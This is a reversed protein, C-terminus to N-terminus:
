SELRSFRGQLSVNLMQIIENETGVFAIGEIKSGEYESFYNPKSTLCVAVGNGNNEFSGAIYHIDEPTVDSDENRLGTFIVNAIGSEIAEYSLDVCRGRLNDSHEEIFREYVGIAEVFSSNKINSFVIM